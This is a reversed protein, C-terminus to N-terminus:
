LEKQVKATFTEFIELCRKAKDLDFWDDTRLSNEADIWWNGEAEAAIKPLQEALNDPGLGGAFGVNKWTNPRVWETPTIGRGGSGDVLIAHSRAETFARLTVNSSNDQTIIKQEKYRYYLRRLEPVSVTGNVQIRDFMFAPSDDDHLLERAGRGCVHLALKGGHVDCVTDCIWKLSPYRNRDEPTETWLFGIEAGYDLLEQIGSIPTREDAGTLTIGITM